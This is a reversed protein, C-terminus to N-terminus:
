NPDLELWYKREILELRYGGNPDPVVEYYTWVVRQDM